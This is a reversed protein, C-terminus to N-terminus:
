LQSTHGGERRAQRISLVLQTASTAPIYWWKLVGSTKTIHVWQATPYFYQFNAWWPPYDMVESGTIAEIPIKIRWLRGHKVWVQNRTVVVKTPVVLLYPVSYVFLPVIIWLILGWYGWTPEMLFILIFVPSMVFFCAFAIARIFVHDYPPKDQLIVIEETM